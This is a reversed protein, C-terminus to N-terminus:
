APDVPKYLELASEAAKQQGAQKSPGTGEGKINGDVFVGVRFVKDHDPGEESLVKYVPTYGDQSQALEQLMSKADVWSGSKLIDGFTILLSKHIFHKAEDYGQDIYLSGVVAEYCNAM